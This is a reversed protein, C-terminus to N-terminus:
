RMTVVPIAGPYDTVTVSKGTAAVQLRVKRIGGGQSPPLQMEWTATFLGSVANVSQTPLAVLVQGNQTNVAISGAVGVSTGNPSTGTTFAATGTTSGNSGSVTFSAITPGAPQSTAQAVAATSGGLFSLLLLFTIVFRM